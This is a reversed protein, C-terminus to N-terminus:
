RPPAYRANVEALKADMEQRLESLLASNLNSLNTQEGPDNALDYLEFENPRGDGPYYGILKYQGKRCSLTAKRIPGNVHTTKADIAFISRQPDEEGGLGPLLIGECAAPVPRGTLSLLTPVVDVSSTPNHVDVRSIQGPSSVLLPIRILPEYLYENTHGLLGREYIEGHDSTLVVYNRELIGERQMFDFLRGLDEDVSAIYADYRDRSKRIEADFAPDPTAIFHALPKDPARWGDSQFAELFEKRPAYPYHPPFLHLYALGAPPLTQTLSMVGDFLDELLFYTDVDNLTQSVGLPYESAHEADASKKGAYIAAKRALGLVSAGSLGPKLEFAYSDLSKFAAIPDNSLIRTYLPRKNLNFEWLDVHSDLWKAFQYLLMDAWANQAYGLRFDADGWYRFLNSDVQDPAILGEYHFARHTWPYTGSLLTATGPSTFNATSYHAHYVTSRAAMREMNPSTRRPYGHLSLNLASLTDLVIVIAGPADSDSGPLARADFRTAALAPILAMLKLLDRRFSSSKM